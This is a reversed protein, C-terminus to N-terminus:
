YLGYLDWVKCVCFFVGSVRTRDVLQEEFGDWEDM